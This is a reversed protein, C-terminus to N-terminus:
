RPAPDFIVVPVGEQSVNAQLLVLPGDSPNAWQHVFDNPEYQVVGAPRPETRGASTIAGAGSFVYYLAAGSRHHPPNAPSKPPFTVQTLTFEYRGPKLGPIPAPTQYMERVGAAQAGPERRVDSERLLLFNLFVAPQSGAARFTVNPRRAVFLAEGERLAAQGDADVRLDGNVVFVFGEVSAYSTSEGPRLTGRLLKFYLPADVVSALQASALVKRVPTPRPVEPQAAPRVTSTLLLGVLLLGILFLSPERM